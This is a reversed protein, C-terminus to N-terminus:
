PKLQRPFEKGCSICFRAGKPSIGGCKACKEVRKGFALALEELNGVRVEVDSFFADFVMWFGTFMMILGTALITFDTPGGFLHLAVFIGGFMSLFVGIVLMLIGLVVKVPGNGNRRIM